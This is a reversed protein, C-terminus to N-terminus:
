NLASRTVAFAAAVAGPEKIKAILKELMNGKGTLNLLSPVEDNPGAVTAGFFMRSAEKMATDYEASDVASMDPSPKWKDLVEILRVPRSM